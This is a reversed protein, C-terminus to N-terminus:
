MAGDNTLVVKITKVLIKIDLKISWQNIYDTDLKVVEEFDTINSRGSVQWLGTLGPRFSMRARHRPEYQEWEDVTPPRTGVLSMDGMLINFMQPFEDLSTKRLFSGIGEKVTGDPLKKNGIIRPDFDLKFMRGDSLRNEKMLEKKREEADLYMTRFKYMKFRRGNRGVREQAFFIPGPSKLCLIPGIFIILLLTIICGVMGGLIDMLRKMALQSPRAYNLSTTLVTYNGFREIQQKNDRIEDARALSVHVVIGMSNLTEVLAEPYHEGLGGPIFVEDVWERCIYDTVESYNAVVPVSGIMEGKRDADAVVAGVFYYTNFHTDCINQICEQIRSQPSIILLMKSGRVRRRRLKRKWITRGILSFLFYLFFMTYFFIRSYVEGKQVSFLYFLTLGQILFLHYCTAVFERYYGRKIVNKFSDFLITVCFDILLFFIALNRYEPKMYPNSFGHRIFYALIFAVQLLINDLLMFDWHKVWDQKAKESM